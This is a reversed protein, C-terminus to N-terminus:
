DDDVARKKRPPEPDYQPCGTIHYTFQNEGSPTPYYVEKATWGKIPTLNHSWSCRGCAKKCKDCLRNPNRKEKVNEFLWDEPVNLAKALPARLELRPAFEGSEWKAPSSQNVGLIKALEHQYLGLAKRSARLRGPFTSGRIM